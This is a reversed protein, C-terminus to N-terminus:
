WVGAVSHDTRDLAISPAAVSRQKCVRVVRMACPAGGQLGAAGPDLNLAAILSRASCGARRAGLGAMGADSLLRRGNAHNSARARHLAHM